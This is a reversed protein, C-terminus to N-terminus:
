RPGSDDRAHRDRRCPRDLEDHRGHRDLVVSRGVSGASSDGWAGGNAKNQLAGEVVLVFPRTTPAAFNTLWQYALDGGMGMVTEHYILDIVDIVVDAIDM